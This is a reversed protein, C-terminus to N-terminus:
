FDIVTTMALSWCDAFICRLGEEKSTKLVHISYSDLFSISTFLLQSTPLPVCDQLPLKVKTQSIM